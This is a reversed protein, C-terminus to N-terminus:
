IITSLFGVAKGMICIDQLRDGEYNLTPFTPNESRLEIRNEYKYVRKLTAEDGILVAAIEGNEVDPQQRIFVIDGDFIRANIMSDGKCRLAFTGKVIDPMNVYTEINEEALIPEGCAITGILPVKKMNPIPTLNNIEESSYTIRDIPVDFGWLWAESVNLTLALIFLKDQKPSAKGNVYQSLDNRHLSIHYKECFPQAANVIDIQKLNRTRMIYQLRESTTFKKTSM